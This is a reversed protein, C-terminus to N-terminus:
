QEEGEAEPATADPDSRKELIEISGTFIGM